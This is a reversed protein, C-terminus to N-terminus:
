LLSKPDYAPKKYLNEEKDTIEEKFIEQWEQPTYDEISCSIHVDSVGLAEKLAEVLMASARQKQEETRGQLMKLSIHPM